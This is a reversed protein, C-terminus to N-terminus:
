QQWCRHMGPVKGGPATCVLGACCPITVGPGCSDGLARCNQAQKQQRYLLKDTLSQTSTTPEAAMPGSSTLLALAFAVAIKRTM